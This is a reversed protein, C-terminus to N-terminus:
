THSSNLRTSKRDGYHDPKIDISELYKVNPKMGIYFETLYSTRLLTCITTDKGPSIQIIQDAPYIQPYGNIGIRNIQSNLITEVGKDEFSLFFEPQNYYEVNLSCVDMDEEIVPYQFKYRKLYFDKPIKEIFKYMIPPLLESRKAVANYAEQQMLIKQEIISEPNYFESDQIFNDNNVNVGVGIIFIILILIIVKKWKDKTEKEM